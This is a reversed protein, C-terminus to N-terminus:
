KNKKRIVFALGFIGALIVAAGGLSSSCGSTTAQPKNSNEETFVATYSANSRIVGDIEVIELTDESKVGWGSFVYGVPAEPAEPLEFTNGYYGHKQDLLTGDENKFSVIYYNTDWKAQLIMDAGDNPLKDGPSFTAKEESATLVWGVFGCKDRKPLSSIVYKQEEARRYQPMYMQTGDENIYTITYISETTTLQVTDASAKVYGETGNKDTVKLYNGKIAKVAFVSFQKISGISEGDEANAFIDLTDTAIYSGCSLFRGTYDVRKYSKSQNYKPTAYGVIFSSSIDHEKLAVYEGNESYEEGITVNGEVTYVRNGDSYRVLGVHTAERNESPDNFFIIDGAQPIYGSRPKDIGQKKCNIFWTSCNVGGDAMADREVGAMRLCWTAFSACWYYGYSMGNGQENDYKGNLVNYEVFDRTGSTNNGGLDADSDGEHYGIQSMAIALVDKAQDGTREVACLNAYFVSEKYEDSMVYEDSAAVDIVLPGGDNGLSAFAVGACIVALLM